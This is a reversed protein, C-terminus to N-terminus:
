IGKFRGDAFDLSCGAAEGHCKQKGQVRGHCSRKREGLRRELRSDASFLRIVIVFLYFRSFLLFNWILASSYRQVSSLWFPFPKLCCSLSIWLFWFSMSPTMPLPLLMRVLASNLESVRLSSSLTMIPTSRQPVSLLISLLTLLEVNM